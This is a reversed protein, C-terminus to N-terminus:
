DPGGGEEVLRGCPFDVKTGVVDSERNIGLEHNAITQVIGFAVPVDRFDLNEAVSRRRGTTMARERATRRASAAGDRRRTTAGGASRRRSMRRDKTTVSLAM